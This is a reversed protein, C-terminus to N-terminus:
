SEGSEELAKRYWDMKGELARQHEQLQVIQGSLRAQHDILMALRASTTAEGQARLQAFRRIERLPM